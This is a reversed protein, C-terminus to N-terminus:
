NLVVKLDKRARDRWVVVPANYGKRMKSGVASLDEPSAIEQGSVELIVDLPKLGAREARGGKDMEIVWAGKPEQLGVAKAYDSTVTGIQMDLLSTMTAAKASATAPATSAPTAMPPGVEVPVTVFSGQRWVKLMATSGTPMKGIAVLYDVDDAVPTPGVAVVVDTFKLGAREANGGPIVGEVSAGQSPMNLQPAKIPDIPTIYAGTRGSGSANWAPCDKSDLVQRVAVRKSAGWAQTQVNTAAEMQKSRALAQQLYDCSRTQYKAPTEAAIWQALSTQRLGSKSVASWEVPPNAIVAAFSAPDREVAPASAPASAPATNSTAAVSGDPVSCGKEGLVQVAAEMATKGGWQNPDKAVAAVREPWFASIQECTQKRYETIFSARISNDLDAKYDAETPSNVSAAYMIPDAILSVPDLICGGLLAFSSGLASMLATRALTNNTKM